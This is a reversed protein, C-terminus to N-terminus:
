FNQFLSENGVATMAALFLKLVFNLNKFCSSRGFPVLGIFYFIEGRNIQKMTKILDLGSM